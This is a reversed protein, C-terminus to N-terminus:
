SNKEGDDKLLRVLIMSNLRYIKRKDLETLEVLGDIGTQRANRSKREIIRLVL